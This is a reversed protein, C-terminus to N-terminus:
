ISSFIKFSEWIMYLSALIFKREYNRKLFLIVLFCFFIWVCLFFSCFVISIFFELFLVSCSIKWIRGYLLSHSFLHSFFFFSNTGRLHTEFLFAKREEVQQIKRRTKEWLNEKERVWERVDAWVVFCNWGFTMLALSFFFIKTNENSTM